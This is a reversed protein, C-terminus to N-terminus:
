LESNDLVESLIYILTLTERVSESEKGISRFEVIFDLVVGTVLMKVLEVVSAIKSWLQSQLKFGYGLDWGDFWFFILCIDVEICGRVLCSTMLLILKLNWMSTIKM